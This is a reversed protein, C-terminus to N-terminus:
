EALVASRTRPLENQEKRFPMYWFSGDLVMLLGFIVLFGDFITNLGLGFYSIFGIGFSIFSVGTRIFALGTRARAYITRYCAAITRQGALVNRERVLHTRERSAPSPYLITCYNALFDGLRALQTTKTAEQRPLVIADPFHFYELFHLTASTVEVLTQHGPPRLRFRRVQFYVPLWIVSLIVGTAILFVFLPTTANLKASRLLVVGTSVLTLGSRTMALATRAKAMDTRYCALLTRWHAMTNRWYALGTRETGILVGVPAHLFDQVYWLIDEQLTVRFEYKRLGLAEGVEAVMAPDDPDRAAVVVSGDDNKLLPFWGAAILREGNLGTLLEPAIPLREDYEIFPCHYFDALAELLKERPIHYEYHLITPLYIGRASADAMAVALAEPTLHGSAVLPTFAQTNIDTITVVFYRRKGLGAPLVM